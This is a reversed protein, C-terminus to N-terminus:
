GKVAGKALGHIIHRQFVIALIVVPVTTVASAAMVTGWPIEGHLGQFLAIGVPITRARYDTTLMLAFMFENFSFIFALLLVSVLGPRAVPLIVRVLVQWRTCGDVLAASDLEKPIQSFYSVLIWVSLPLTWAAYPLVLAPYTNILKLAAMLKFLYGVLSVQPFMSLALVGLLLPVRGPVPLRTFAYAALAAATVSVVASAASIVLSNRLYHLFHLNAATVARYHEATFNFRVGESLFDSHKSFSTALMVAFPFLCFVLMAAAGVATLLTKQRNERM